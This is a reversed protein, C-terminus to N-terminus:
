KILPKIQNKFIVAGDIMANNLFIDLMEETITIIEKGGGGGLKTVCKSKRFKNFLRKSESKSKDKFEEEIQKM